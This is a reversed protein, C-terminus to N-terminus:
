KKNKKRNRTEVKDPNLRVNLEPRLTEVWYREQKNRKSKNEVVELIQGSIFKCDKATQISIAGTSKHQSIRYECSTSQGVYLGKDTQIAYIGPTGRERMMKMAKTQLQKGREPNEKMWQKRAPKTMKYHCKSCYNYTYTHGTKKNLVTYYMDLPKVELCKNCQKLNEM